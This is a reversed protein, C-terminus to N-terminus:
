CHSATQNFSALGVSYYQMADSAVDLRPPLRDWTAAAHRPVLCPARLVGDLYCAVRVSFKQHVPLLLLHLIAHQSLATVTSYCHLLLAISAISVFHVLFLPLM